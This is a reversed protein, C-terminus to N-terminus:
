RGRRGPMTAFLEANILELSEDILTQEAADTLMAQQYAALSVEMRAETKNLEVLLTQVQQHGQKNGTIRLIREWLIRIDEITRRVLIPLTQIQRAAAQQESRWRRIEWLRQQLALTSTPAGELAFLRRIASDLAQIDWLVRQTQTIIADLEELGYRSGPDGFSEMELVWQSSQFVAEITNLTQEVATKAHVLTMPGSEAVALQASAARPLWLIVVGLLLLRRM